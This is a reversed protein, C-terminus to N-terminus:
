GPPAHHLDRFVGNSKLNRIIDFLLQTERDTLSSTPEDMIVLKSRFSVARAIEVMQQQAISMGLVKRRVDM